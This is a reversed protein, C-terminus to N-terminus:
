HARSNSYCPGLIISESYYTGKFTVKLKFLWNPIPEMKFISQNHLSHALQINSTANIM